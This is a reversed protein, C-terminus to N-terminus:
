LSGMAYVKKWKPLGFVGAIISKPFDIEKKLYWNMLRNVYDIAMKLEGFRWNLKLVMDRFHPDQWASSRRYETSIRGRVEIYADTLKIMCTNLRDVEDTSAGKTASITKLVSACEEGARNLDQAKKMDGDSQFYKDFVATYEPIQELLKPLQSELQVQAADILGQFHSLNKYAFFSWALVVAVVGIVVILVTRM